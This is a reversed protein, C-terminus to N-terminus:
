WVVSICSRNKETNVSSSSRCTLDHAHCCLQANPTVISGVVGGAVTVDLGLGVSGTVRAGDAFRVRVDVTFREDVTMGVGVAIGVGIAVGEGVAVGVAMGVTMGVVVGIAMGSAVGVGAAVRMALGVRVDIAVGVEVSCMVTFRVM